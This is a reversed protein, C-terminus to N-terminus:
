AKRFDTNKVSQLVQKNLLHLLLMSRAEGDPEKFIAQLGELAGETIVVSDGPYPTEPDTIGEPQYAELQQIVAHPVSAPHMGFRVFHSVGRTANITTTHIVEPDFEVFLYNPFLPEKVTTRKGRVIKELAIMPTLCSVSQRELHEQARQLQGRKCYLLYWSQM